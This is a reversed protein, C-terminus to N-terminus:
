HTSHLAYDAESLLQALEDPNSPTMRYLWGDELPSHNVIDPTDALADNIAVVDGSIPSYVDSATKVSEVVCAEDGAHLHAGIDPLEVFVLDGLADQAHNSIGITATGDADLKVWEHSKAYRPNSM